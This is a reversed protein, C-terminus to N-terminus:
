LPEHPQNNFGHNYSTRTLSRLKRSLMSVAALAVMGLGIHAANDVAFQKGKAALIELHSPEQTQIHRGIQQDYDTRPSTSYSDAHSQLPFNEFREMGSTLPPPDFKRLGRDLSLVGFYAGDTPTKPMASEFAAMTTAQGSNTTLYDQM